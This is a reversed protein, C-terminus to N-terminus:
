IEINFECGDLETRDTRHECLQNFKNASCHQNNITCKITCTSTHSNFMHTQLKCIKKGNWGFMLKWRTDFIEISFFTWHKQQEVRLNKPLHPYFCCTQEYRFTGNVMFLVLHSYATKWDFKLDRKYARRETLLLIHM